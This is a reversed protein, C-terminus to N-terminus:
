ASRRRAAAFSAAGICSFCNDRPLKVQYTTAYPLRPGVLLSRLETRPEARPQSELGPCSRGPGGKKTLSRPRVRAGISIATEVSYEIPLRQVRPVRRARNRRGSYVGKAARQPM